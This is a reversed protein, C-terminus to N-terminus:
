PRILASVRELLSDLLDAEDVVDDVMGLSLARQASLAGLRGLLSLRLIEGQSLVPALLPASQAPQGREVGTDAFLVDNTALVVDADAVLQLGFDFVDGRLGVGFPKLLGLLKPAVVIPETTEELAAASFLADVGVVAVGSVAGDDQLSRWLRQLEVVGQLDTCPATRVVAIGGQVAVEKVVLSM